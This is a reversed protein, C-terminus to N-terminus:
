ALRLLTKDLAALVAMPDTHGISAGGFVELGGYDSAQSSLKGRSLVRCLAHRVRILGWAAFLYSHSCGHDAGEADPGRMIVCLTHSPACLPNKVNSHRHPSGPFSIFPPPLNLHWGRQMSQSASCGKQGM